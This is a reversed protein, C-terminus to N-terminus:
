PCPRSGVVSWDAGGGSLTFRFARDDEEILESIFGGPELTKIGAMLDDVLFREADEVTKSTAAYVMAGASGTLLISTTEDAVPGSITIERVQGSDPHWFVNISFLYSETEDLYQTYENLGLVSGTALISEPLGFGLTTEDIFANWRAPLDNIEIGLTACQTEFSNSEPEPTSTPPPTAAEQQAGGCASLLLAAALIAVVRQKPVLISHQM